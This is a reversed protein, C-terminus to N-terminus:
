LNYNKEKFNTVITNGISIILSLLTVSGFAVGWVIGIHVVSIFAGLNTCRTFDISKLKEYLHTVAGVTYLNKDQKNVKYQIKPTKYSLLTDFLIIFLYSLNFFSYITICILLFKDM